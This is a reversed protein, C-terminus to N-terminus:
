EVVISFALEKPLLCERERCLQYEVKGALNTKVKNKVTVLQVFDVKDAYQKVQVGFLDEFYNEINGVEKVPGNATVLPNKTFSFKTPIPGGPPTKQSYIHWGKELTATMHLEYKGTGINKASYNWKIPNKLQARIGTPALLLTVLLFSLLNTNKPM